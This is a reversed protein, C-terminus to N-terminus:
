DNDSQGAGAGALRSEETEPAHTRHAFGKLIEATRPSMDGRWARRVPRGAIGTAAGVRVRDACTAGLGDDRAALHSIRDARALTVGAWALTLASGTMDAAIAVHPYLLLPCATRLLTVGPGAAVEAARDCLAAGTILPCLVGGAAAWEAGTEAPRLLPYAAGDNRQLLAALGEAGPLGMACLWRASKGAEEALGWSLGAGCAAKRALAEIENLSWSM